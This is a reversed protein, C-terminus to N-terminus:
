TTLKAGSSPMISQTPTECDNDILGLIVTDDAYKIIHSNQNCSRVDNTYVIFLFVSLVCGQAGGTNISIKESNGKSVKVYQTRNTLFILIWLQLSPHVGYNNLKNVLLHPQMTNFALSYDIFLSWM